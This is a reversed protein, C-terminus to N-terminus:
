MYSTDHMSYQAVSEIFHEAFYDNATTVEGQNRDSVELLVAVVHKCKHYVSFNPCECYPKITGSDINSMDVEVYYSSTGEVEAFWAGGNKNFSLGQVRNMHYYQLGREYVQAPFLEQINAHTLKREM